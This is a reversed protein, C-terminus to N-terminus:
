EPFYVSIEYGTTLTQQQYSSETGMHANEM